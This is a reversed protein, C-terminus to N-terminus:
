KKLLLKSQEVIFPKLFNPITKPNKMFNIFWDPVNDIVVERLVELM